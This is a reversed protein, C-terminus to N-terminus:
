QSWNIWKKKIEPVFDLKSLVFDLTKLLLDLKNLEPSSLLSILLPPPNNTSLFLFCSVVLVETWSLFSSTSFVARLLLRVDEERNVPPLKFLERRPVVERLELKVLKCLGRVGSVLDETPILWTVECVLGSLPPRKPEVDGARLIVLLYVDEPSEDPRPFDRIPCVSDEAVWLLTDCNDARVLWCDTPPKDIFVLWVNDEM